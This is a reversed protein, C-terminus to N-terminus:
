FYGCQGVCRLLQIVLSKNLLHLIYPILFQTIKGRGLQVLADNVLPPCHVHLARSAFCSVIEELNNQLLNESNINVFFFNEM